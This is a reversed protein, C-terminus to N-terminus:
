NYNITQLAAQCRDHWRKGCYKMVDKAAAELRVAEAGTKAENAAKRLLLIAKTPDERHIEELARLANQRTLDSTKYNAVTSVLAPLAPAGIQFLSEVAPYRDEMSLFHQKEAETDPRRFELLSILVAIAGIEQADGLQTIIKKTCAPDATHRDRELFTILDKTQSSAIDPCPNQATASDGLALLCILAIGLAHPCLPNRLAPQRVKM